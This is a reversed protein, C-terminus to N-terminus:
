IDCVNSTHMYVPAVLPETQEDGGVGGRKMLGTHLPASLLRNSHLVGLLPFEQGLRDHVPSSLVYPATVQVLPSKIAQM